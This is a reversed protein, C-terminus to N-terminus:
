PLLALWRKSGPAPCRSRCSFRGRIVTVRWGNTSQWIQMVSSSLILHYMFYFNLFSFYLYPVCAAM